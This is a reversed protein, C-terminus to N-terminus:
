TGDARGQLNNWVNRVESVLGEFEDADSPKHVCLSAQLGLAELLVDVVRQSTEVNGGVVAPCDGAAEPFESNLIGRPVDIDVAELLGENLPLDERAWLRLAYLVASRVIAPTANLNGGHVEGTGAFDVVLRGGSCTIRVDIATGDDMTDGASWSQGEYGGLLQAMVGAARQYLRKM